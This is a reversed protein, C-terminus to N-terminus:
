TGIFFFCSDRNRLKINCKRTKELQREPLEVLLSLLHLTIAVLTVTFILFKGCFYLGNTFKSSMEKPNIEKVSVGGGTVFAKEISQTGNVNVTFEKFDKVLARIKEHSVQGAQESGDIENKELLFLFYREPVYGKLM